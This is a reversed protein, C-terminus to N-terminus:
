KRAPREGIRVGIVLMGGQYKQGAVFFPEGPSALVELLPLYDKQNPRNISVQVKARGDSRRERLTIRLKRGNPLDLEFAHEPTLSLRERSLIKMSQYGNFPPEKLARLSSLSPDIPGEEGHALIVLVEGRAHADAAHAPGAGALWMTLLAALTRAIPFAM